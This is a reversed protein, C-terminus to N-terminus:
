SNMGRARRRHIEASISDMGSFEDQLDPPPDPPKPNDIAARKAVRSMMRTVKDFLEVFEIKVNRQERELTSLRASFALLANQVPESATKKGFLRM